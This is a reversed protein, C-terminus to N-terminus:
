AGGNEQVDGGRAEQADGGRTEQAEDDGIEPSVDGTEWADGGGIEGWSADGNGTEWGGNGGNALGGAVEGM